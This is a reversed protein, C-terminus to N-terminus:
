NASKSTYTKWNTLLYGSPELIYNKRDGKSTPLSGKIDRIFTLKFHVFMVNLLQNKAQARQDDQNKRNSTPEQPGVLM